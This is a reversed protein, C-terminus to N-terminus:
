TPSQQHFALQWAGRSRVYVSGVLARYPGDQGDRAAETAYALLAVDPSLEMLRADSMEVREWRQGGEVGQITQERDLFGVGPFAMLVEPALSERYFPAGDTWMRRELDLLHALLDM